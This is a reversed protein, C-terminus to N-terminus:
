RGGRDPEPPYEPHAQEWTVFTQCFDNGLVSENRDDFVVNGAEVLWDDTFHVHLAGFEPFEAEPTRIAFDETSTSKSTGQANTVTTEVELADLITLSIQCELRREPIRTMGILSFGDALGPGASLNGAGGWAVTTTQGSETHSLSGSGSWGINAKRHMLVVLPLQEDVDQDPSMRYGSVFARFTVEVTASRQLTGGITRNIQFTITWQTLHAVNSFREGPKGAPGYPGVGTWVQVMGCYPGDPLETTISGPYWSRVRLEHAPAPLGEWDRNELPPDALLAAPDALTETGEGLYVRGEEDGFQGNIFLEGTPEYVIMSEITPRVQNVLFSSDTWKQLLAPGGEAEVGRTIGQHYLYSFIEEIGYSRLRPENQLWRSNLENTAFLLGFFDAAAGLVTRVSPSGEWGVVVRAGFAQIPSLFEGVVDGTVNLFVLSEPPFSWQYPEHRIFDPTIALRTMPTPDDTVGSPPATLYALRKADLDAAFSENAESGVLAPTSTLIGAYSVGDVEAYGGHATIIVVGDGDQVPADPDPRGVGKLGEVDTILPRVFGGDEFVTGLDVVDFGAAAAVQEITPITEADVWTGTVHEYDMVPLRQWTNISRLRATTLHPETGDGARQPRQGTQFAATTASPGPSRGALSRSPSSTTRRRVPAAPNGPAGNAFMHIRGDTYVAWACSARDDYGISSFVSQQGLYGLFAEPDYRQGSGFLQRLETEVGVISASRQATSV